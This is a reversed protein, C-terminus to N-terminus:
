FRSDVGMMLAGKLLEIRVLEGILKLATCLAFIARFARRAESSSNSMGTRFQTLQVLLHRWADFIIRYFSFLSKHM